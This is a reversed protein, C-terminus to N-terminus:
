GDVVLAQLPGLLRASRRSTATLEALGHTPPEGRDARERQEAAIPRWLEDVVTDPDGAVEDVGRELHARGAARAAGGAARRARGRVAAHHVV